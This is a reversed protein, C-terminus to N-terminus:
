RSRSVAREIADCTMINLRVRRRAEVMAAEASAHAAELRHRLAAYEEGGLWNYAEGKFGRLTSARDRLHEPTGHVVDRQDHSRPSRKSPDPDVLPTYPPSPVPAGPLFRRM